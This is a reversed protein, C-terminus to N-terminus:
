ETVEVLPGWATNVHEYIWPVGGGIKLRGDSQEVWVSGHRDRWRRPKEAEAQQSTAEPQQVQPQQSQPQYPVLRAIIQRHHDSTELLIDLTRGSLAVFTIADDDSGIFWSRAWLVGTEPDLWLSGMAADLVAPRPEPRGLLEWEVNKPRRAIPTEFSDFPGPGWEVRARRSARDSGRYSELIKVCSVTFTHAVAPGSGTLTHRVKDGVRIDEPNIPRPLDTM